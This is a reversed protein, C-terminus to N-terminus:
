RCRGSPRPSPRRPPTRGRGRPRRAPDQADPLRVELLVPQQPDLNRLAVQVYPRGARGLWLAVTEETVPETRMGIVALEVRRGLFGGRPLPERVPHVVVVSLGVDDVVDVLPDERRVRRVRVVRLGRQSGRRNETLRRCGSGGSGASSAAPASSSRTRPSRRRRATSGASRAGPREPVHGRGDGGARPRVGPLLHRPRRVRRRPRAASRPVSRTPWSRPRARPSCGAKPTGVSTVDGVAYVDPSRPRSPSRTWRSGATSRSGRRRRRGPSRHVPVGLFLDYPM